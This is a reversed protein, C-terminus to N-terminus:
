GQAWDVAAPETPADGSAAVVDLLSRRPLQGNAECWALVTAISEFRIRGVLQRLRTETRHLNHYHNVRTKLGVRLQPQEPDLEWPHVYLVTPGRRAARSFAWRFIPGPLFRLYGGGAVPLRWGLVPATTMPFERISLGSELDLQTPGSPFEAIGYRPHRVPFISSDYHFGEEALIDLAWLSRRVISFSPARFGRPTHGSADEIATVARQIDARFRRPGLEYVLAHEYGHCAIEHGRAAIERVLSAHREAVWGLVFFTARAGKEDFLDLLRRTPDLLRSPLAEWRRRAIVNSFNSVHFYEELDVSIAHKM